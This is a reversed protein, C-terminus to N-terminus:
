SLGAAGDYGVRVVSYTTAAVGSHQPRYTAVLLAADPAPDLASDLALWALGGM